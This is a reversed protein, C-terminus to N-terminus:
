VNQQKQAVFYVREDTDAAADFSMDGYIGRVCFGSDRLMAEIM